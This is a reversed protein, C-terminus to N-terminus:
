GAALTSREDGLKGKAVFALALFDRAFGGVAGLEEEFLQLQEVPALRLAHCFGLEDVARVLASYSFAHEFPHKACRALQSMDSPRQGLCAAHFITIQELSSELYPLGNCPRERDKAAGAAILGM